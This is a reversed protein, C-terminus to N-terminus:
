HNLQAHITMENVINAPIEISPKFDTSMWGCECQYRFRTEVATTITDELSKFDWTLLPPPSYVHCNLRKFHFHGWIRNFILIPATYMSEAAVLLRM